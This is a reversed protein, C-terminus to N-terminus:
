ISSNNAYNKDDHLCHLCYIQQPVNISRDYPSRPFIFTLLYLKCKARSQNTHTKHSHKEQFITEKWSSILLLSSSLPKTKGNGVRTLEVYLTFYM